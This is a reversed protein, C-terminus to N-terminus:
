EDEWRDWRPHRYSGDPTREQYEIRLKRGLFPVGSCLQAAAEIRDLAERDRAKVTTQNGEEDELVVIAFRGNDIIEGRSPQYGIVRLVASRLDKIKVFDKSRKGPQYPAGSRKLILGEGGRAWISDRLHTVEEFTSVPWSFALQVGRSARNIREDAFMTDLLARREHYPRTMADNGLLELIDFCMFVLRHTESLDTVGFSRGGPVLLEGDYTGDPLQGIAERVHRPLLRPLGNRSWAMVTTDSFLDSPNGRKEVILRHGDYKEEAVWPGNRFANSWTPTVGKGTLRDLPSALMPKIFPM